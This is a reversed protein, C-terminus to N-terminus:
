LTRCQLRRWMRKCLLRVGYQESERYGYRLTYKPHHDSPPRSPRFLPGLIIMMKLRQRRVLRPDGLRLPELLHRGYVSRSHQVSVSLAFWHYLM